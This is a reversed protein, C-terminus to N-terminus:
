DIRTHGAAAAFFHGRSNWNVRQDRRTCTRRMFWPRPNSTQGAEGALKQAALRRLEDYVLPATTGRRLYAGGIANLHTVDSMVLLYLAAPHLCHLPGFGAM